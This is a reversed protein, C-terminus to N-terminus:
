LRVKLEFYYEIHRLKNGLKGFGTRMERDDNEDDM